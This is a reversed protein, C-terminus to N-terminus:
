SKNKLKELENLLDEMYMTNTLQENEFFMIQNKLEFQFEMSHWDLLFEGRNAFIIARNLFNDVKGFELMISEIYKLFEDDHYIQDDDYVILCAVYKYKVLEL